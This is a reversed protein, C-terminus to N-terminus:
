NVAGGAIVVFPFLTRPSGNVPNDADERSSDMAKVVIEYQTRSGPVLIVNEDDPYEDKIMGLIRTLEPWDYDDVGQCSGGSKCPVTPPREEGEAVPAAGEPNLVADAGLVTIGKETLALSLNLPPKEPEEEVPQPPGIAPLTSDIVALSVFEAAMLLFPILITVLNMVPVLNLEEAEPLERRRSM